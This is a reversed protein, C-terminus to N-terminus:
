DEVTADRQQKATKSRNLRYSFTLNIQRTRSQNSGESYFTDGEFVNRTKRTNFVDLSNLNLTGKGKLIDKSISIDIYYLAKRRGQVTKQPAEYNTRLQLNLNGPLSFKSTQRAFWSYTTNKYTAIINTGDIDAYFFNFNADWKWWKAMEFTGTLEVGYSNESRLNGPKTVSNGEQDVTRIREIKDTTM